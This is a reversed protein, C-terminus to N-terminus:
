LFRKWIEKEKDSSVEITNTSHREYYKSEFRAPEDLSEIKIILISKGYYEFYDINRLIQDKYKSPTININSIINELKQRYEEHNKYKSMEGDLGTVYFDKYYKSKLKYFDEYINKDKVSDAVGLVIYGISGRGANAIATLTRIMKIFSKEDFDNGSSLRHTGIKFDYSTNETKSAGLLSELKMVGNNLVPDNETRKMFQANCIGKIAEIAKERPGSLNLKEANSTLFKDGIGEFVKALNKYNRITKQDNVLFDYFALFVVQFSRNVYKTENKFLVRDFNSRTAEFTKRFESYVAQFTNIIYDNGLKKIKDDVIKHKSEDPSYFNDINYATASPRPNLLIAGLLHAVMEEDRSQRINENSVINHKRWFIGGMNIGYKLDKNNISIAKMNNLLLKDGTSVDGRISEAIKRVLYGFSNDLGAQRLEQNSLYRGSSNIRKFIDDIIDEDEISTVSLPIPYSAINKCLKREMVPKKQKLRKTDLLLKTNAITELDFYEGNVSFEGEIFTTIADLRQMGDIIEFCSSSKFKVEAVLILPVPLNLSLSDIFDKKEKITWVLKRQYRRNVLLKKEQYYDFITEITEPRITLKKSIEM